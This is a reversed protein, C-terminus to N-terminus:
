VTTAEIFQKMTNDSFSVNVTRSVTTERWLPPWNLAGKLDKLVITSQHVFPTLSNRLITKWLTPPLSNWIHSGKFSVAHQAQSLRHFIPVTLSCNRTHITHQCKFQEQSQHM